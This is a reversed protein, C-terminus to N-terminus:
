GADSLVILTYSEVEIVTGDKCAVDDNTRVTHIAETHIAEDEGICLYQNRCNSLAQKTSLDSELSKWRAYDVSFTDKFALCKLTLKLEGVGCVNSGAVTEM